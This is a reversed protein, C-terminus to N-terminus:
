KSRQADPLPLKPPVKRGSKEWVIV